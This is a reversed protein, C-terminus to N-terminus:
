AKTVDLVLVKRMCGISLINLTSLHVQLISLDQMKSDSNDHAIKFQFRHLPQADEPKGSYKVNFVQIDLCTFTGGIAPNYVIVVHEDNACMYPVHGSSVRITNCKTEQW